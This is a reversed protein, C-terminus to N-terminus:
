EEHVIAVDIFHALHLALLNGHEIVARGITLFGDRDVFQQGFFITEFQNLDFHRMGAVLLAGLVALSFVVFTRHM